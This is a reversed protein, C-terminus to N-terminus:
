PNAWSAQCARYCDYGRTYAEAQCRDADRECATQGINSQRFCAYQALLDSGAADLCDTFETAVDGLCSQYEVLCQTRDQEFDAICQNICDQLDAPTPLLLLLISGALSVFLVVNKM